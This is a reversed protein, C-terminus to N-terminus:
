GGALRNAVTVFDWPILEKAGAARTRVSAGHADDERDAL